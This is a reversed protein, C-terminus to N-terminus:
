KRIGNNRDFWELTKNYIEDVEWALLCGHLNGQNLCFGKPKFTSDCPLCTFGERKLILHREPLWTPRWIDATPGWLSVSPIGLAYALHLPGSNNGVYLKSNKIWTTIAKLSPERIVRVKGSIKVDRLERPQIWIVSFRTSLAEALRVFRDIPWRQYERSAGPHVVIEGRVSSNEDLLHSLDPMPCSGEFGSGTIEKTLDSAIRWSWETITESPNWKLENTASQMWPQLHHCEGGYRVIGGFLWATIHATVGQDVDLLSAKSRNKSAFGFLRSFTSPSRWGRMFQDKPLIFSRDPVWPGFVESAIPTTYLAVQSRGLREILKQLVPLFVISDGLLNVKFISLKM